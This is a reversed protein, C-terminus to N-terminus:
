VRRFELDCGLLYKTFAGTLETVRLEIIQGPIAVLDNVISIVQVRRVQNAVAVNLVGWQQLNQAVNGSSYARFYIGVDNPLIAAGFMWFYGTCRLQSEGWDPPVLITAFVEENPGLEWAESTTGGFTNIVATNTAPDTEFDGLGLNIYRANVFQRSDTIDIAQISAAGQAVYVIALPIEWTTGAVQTLAPVGGGAVGQLIVTRITQAAWSARLIVRDYRAGPGPNAAIALTLDNNNLYWGGYVLGVGPEVIVNMSAPTTPIVELEDLMGAVPGREDVEDSDIHLTRYLEWWQDATYPGADGLIVGDWPRSYEAM